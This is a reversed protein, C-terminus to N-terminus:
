RDPMSSDIVNKKSSDVPLLKYNCIFSWDRRWDNGNKDMMNEDLEEDAPREVRDCETSIHTVEGACVNMVEEDWSDNLYGDKVSEFWNDREQATKFFMMGYDGPDYLFYRYEDDPHLEFDIKDINENM